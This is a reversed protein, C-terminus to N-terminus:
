IETVTADENNASLPLRPTHTNNILFHSCQIPLKKIQGHYSAEM